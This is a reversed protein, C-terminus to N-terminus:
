IRYGLIRLESPTGSRRSVACHVYNAERITIYSPVNKLITGCTPCKKQSYSIKEVIGIHGSFVKKGVEPHGPAMGSTLIYWVGVNMIALCGVKPNPSNIIRKKDNITWMGYPFPKVQTRAYLVCNCRQPHKTDIVQIKM